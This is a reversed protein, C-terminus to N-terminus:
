EIRQYLYYTYTYTKDFPHSAEDVLTYKSTDLGYQELKYYRTVIFDAEGNRICTNQEYWMEPTDINFYCFYRCAPTAGSAFYFGGDLFGYNLLTANDVTQIIKAFRYQVTDEKSYKTLYINQNFTLTNSLLISLTLSLALVTTLIHKPMWKHWLDFLQTSRLFETWVILGFVCYAAFVLGYYDWPKGGWYTGLTLGLFSLVVMLGAKWQHKRKLLLFLSGTWILWGYNTNYKIAAQLCKWISELRSGEMEEAYLFINNYFYVVLLDKVAGHWAFYAFVVASVATVGLLFQGITVLLKGRLTEDTLYWVLIFLALGLYFGLTTYKVWLVIGAFIGNAFAETFTLPREERIARLVSYMSYVLIFLANQEVSGGHTFSWSTVVAAALVAVLFYVVKSAGVYLQALKGSYYLFLGFTVVELLYVGVFSDDSFLAIIAYVFYLVPGKQEYLDQYPVLGDLIGRGMTFFCNVDVWDNLPYLPSSKSALGIFLASLLMSWLLLIKNNKKM